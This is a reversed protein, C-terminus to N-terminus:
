TMVTGGGSPRRLVRVGAKACAELDIEEAVRCSSGLVIAHEDAMWTRVVRTTCHGEHAEALLAEDLALQSEVTPLAADLWVTGPHPASPALSPPRDDPRQSM